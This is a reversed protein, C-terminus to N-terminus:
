QEAIPTAVLDLDDQDLQVAWLLLGLM